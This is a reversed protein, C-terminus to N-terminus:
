YEIGLLDLTGFDIVGFPRDNEMQFKVLSQQTTTGFTSDTDYGLQSLAAEIKPHLSTLKKDTPCLCDVYLNWGAEIKEEKEEKVVNDRKYFDNPYKSMMKKTKKNYEIAHRQNEPDYKKDNIRELTIYDFIDLKNALPGTYVYGSYRHIEYDNREEGYQIVQCSPKISSKIKNKFETLDIGLAEFGDIDLRSLTEYDLNGIPLKLDKQYKVLAEKATSSLLPSTGVDLQYGREFLKHELLEIVQAFYPENTCVVEKWETFGGHKDKTTEIQTETIEFDEPMLLYADKFEKSNRCTTLQTTEAPTDMLCWVLCDNPDVSLCNRDAKKKVWHQVPQKILIEEQNCLEPYRSPDKPNISLAKKTLYSTEILCKAYCKGPEHPMGSELQANVQIWCGVMAFVIAYKFHLAKM